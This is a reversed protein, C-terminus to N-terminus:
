KQILNGKNDYQQSAWKNLKHEVVDRPKSYTERCYDKIRDKLKFERYTPKLGIATFPPSQAGDITLKLTLRFRDLNVLDEATLHPAYEKELRQADKQGVVYNMLTGINGFIADQIKQDIQDVYQHTVILNLGYKRAESLIKVFSETAFNQFEDVYLYFDRRQNEPIKARQMANSYLRTVIMAGLLSSNEEGIKGQSLNVLFIKGTNMIEQLDISSKIQGIMNRIMTPGLFRGVKNQIPAIAEALLKQNNSLQTFEDEWFKLIFPDKVQKLLFKRYNKDSLIRLVALLSVNQCHLLTLISYNLLYELRPGWSDGFFKKFVNVIGDALLDKTEDPKIDLMNLGIPYEIDSPDLYVVDKIRHEPIIDLIEEVLDGHPDLVALGNGDLIDGIIMNKLLTSKGTGTKGLLYMHRRRDLKKIGFPIHINRYDTVAFIRPNEQPPLNPNITPINLPYELKRSKAWAINPTKVSEHPLHYISALEEVNLINTEREDLFRKHFKQIVNLKDAPRKGFISQILNDRFRIVFGTKKVKKKVLSNQQATQFQKFSAEVDELIQECVVKDSSSSVIRIAFQFGVKNSKREIDAISINADRNQNQESTTDSISKTKLNEIYKKGAEQWANNVPRAVIQIWVESDGKLSSVAGTISALPDVEFSVFTRIPLFFEKSLVIESGM